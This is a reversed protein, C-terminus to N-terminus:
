TYEPDGIPEPDHQLINRRRRESLVTPVDAPNFGWLPLALLEDSGTRLSAGVPIFDGSPYITGSQIM